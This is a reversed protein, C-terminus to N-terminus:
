ESELLRVLADTVRARALDMEPGREQRAALAYSEQLAINRAAEEGVNRRDALNLIKTKYEPQSLVLAENVYMPMLVDYESLGTAAMVLEVQEVTPVKEGHFLPAATSMPLQLTASVNEANWGAGRLAETDFFADGPRHSVWDHDAFTAFSTFLHEVDPMLDEDPMRSSFMFPSEIDEGDAAFVMNRVDRQSCVSGIRRSLLHTGISNPASAWVVLDTLLPSAEAPVVTSGMCAKASDLTVPLASIYADEVHGLLVLGLDNRDISLMWLDGATPAGTIGADLLVVSQPTLNTKDILKM